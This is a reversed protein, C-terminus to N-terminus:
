LKWLMQALDVPTMDKEIIEGMNYYQDEMELELPKSPYNDNIKNVASQVFAKRDEFLKRDHDRIIMRLVAKDVTGEVDSIHYFGERDRQTNQYKLNQSNM